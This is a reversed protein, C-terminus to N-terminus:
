NAEILDWDEKSRLGDVVVLCQQQELYKRCLQFIDQGHKQHHRSSKLFCARVSTTIEFPDPVSVVHVYSGQYYWGRSSMFAMYKCGITPPRQTMAKWCRESTTTKNGQRNKPLVKSFAYISHDTSLERLLWVHYPQETCLSAIELQRTSVVVRSGNKMDPLFMKVANWEVVTSLDELVILYRNEKIREMFEALISDQTAKMMELVQQLRVNNVGQEQTSPEQTNPEQTNDQTNPEQTNPSNTIFEALLSRIFEHPSFPHMLKVWAHCHFKGRIEPEDYAKKIISTTGLDGGTGSVAIVQLENGERKILGALDLTGAQNNDFGDRPKIFIDLTRQSAAPTPLMHQDGSSGTLSYRINRQNVDEAQAKLQKIEAVAQDLPLMAPVVQSATLPIIACSPRGSQTWTFSSSSATSGGTTNLFSQMMEFEDKIFVIDRQLIQWKEAEEKVASRAKNVLKEVVTKSIGIALDAM